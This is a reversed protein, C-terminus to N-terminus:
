MSRWSVGWVGLEVMEDESPEEEVDGHVVIFVALEDSCFFNQM